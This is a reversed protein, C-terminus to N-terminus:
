VQATKSKHGKFYFLAGLFVTLAAIAIPLVISSNVQNSSLPPFTADTTIPTPTFRINTPTPDTPQTTPNAQPESTPYTQPTPSPQLDENQNQEVVTAAHPNSSDPYVPNNISINTIMSIWAEGNAEPIVLRLTEVLPNGDLEYAVIVDDPTDDAVSFPVTYGDSAYLKLDATQGSFGAKELLVGIRVGGWYGSTILQGYCKLDAYVTTKPMAYLDSLSLTVTNNPSIQVQLVWSNEGSILSSNPSAALASFQTLYTSFTLAIALLAILIQSTKKSL